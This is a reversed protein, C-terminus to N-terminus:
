AAKRAGGKPAHATLLRRERLAIHARRAAEHALARKVGRAANGVQKAAHTLPGIPLRLHFVARVLAISQEAAEAPPLAALAAPPPAGLRAFPAGAEEGQAV